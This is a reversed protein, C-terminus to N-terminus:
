RCLILGFSLLVAFIIMNRSTEGILKNLAKGERIRCMKKWTLYHPVLYLLSFLPICLTKTKLEYDNSTFYIEGTFEIFIIVVATIGSFLYFYRGFTGGFRVLLTKKGSKQDTFRDRYNNLIMLTNIVLGTAIGTMIIVSTWMATQIFCTVGVAILGFFIVVAIDGLGKYALPYPGATYLFAFVACFMGVLIMEWGGYRVLTLGILCALSVVFFIGKKMSPVSIWGQATARLPGLRDEGDTGKLYDFLDNILNAAIQMLVAFLLCVVSPIWQFSHYFFALSSGVIVPVTAAALTKPRAALIWAKLSNKKVAQDVM